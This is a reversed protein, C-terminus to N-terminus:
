GSATHLHARQGDRDFISIIEAPGGEAEFLHPVMCDFEAAEGEDVLIVRDGLTLRVCGSLVFFWDYGPHVKPEGAPRDTEIRQKVAIMSGTPRSLSWTTVGPRRQPTPRIVVDDDTSPELLADISVELGAALAVLLDLSIGRKGTEVRSITSPSVHSREALEDLSMGLSQRVGRLRTRVLDSVDGTAM